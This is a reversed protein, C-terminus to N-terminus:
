WYFKCTTLKLKSSLAYSWNCVKILYTLLRCRWSMKGGRSRTETVYHGPCVRQWANIFRQVCECSWLPPGGIQSSALLSTQPHDDCFQRRCLVLDRHIWLWTNWVTCHGLLMEVDWPSPTPPRSNLTGPHHIIRPCVLPLCRSLILATNSWILLAPNFNCVSLHTKMCFCTFYNPCMTPLSPDLLLRSLPIMAWVLTLVLLVVIQLSSHSTCGPFQLSLWVRLDGPQACNVRRNSLQLGPLMQLDAWNGQEHVPKPKGLNNVAM